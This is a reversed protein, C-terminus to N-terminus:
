KKAVFYVFVFFLATVAAGLAYVSVINMKKDGREILNIYPFAFFWCYIDVNFSNEM